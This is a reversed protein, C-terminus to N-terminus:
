SLAKKWVAVARPWGSHSEYWKRAAEGCLRAEGGAVIDPLVCWDAGPGFQDLMKAYLPGNFTEGTIHDTWAGNDIAYPFGETRWVGARSILLRWGLRRLGELNRKTGTRSAYCIM